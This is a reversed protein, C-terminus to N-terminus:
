LKVSFHLSDTGCRRWQVKIKGDSYTTAKIKIIGAAPEMDFIDMRSNLIDYKRENSLNISISIFQPRKITIKTKKNLIAYHSM